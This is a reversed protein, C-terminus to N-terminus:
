ENTRVEAKNLLARGADTPKVRRAAIGEIALLGDGELKRIMQQWRIRESATLARGAFRELRYETGREVIDRRQREIRYAEQNSFFDRAAANAAALKSDIDALDADFTAVIGRLVDLPDVIITKPRGM